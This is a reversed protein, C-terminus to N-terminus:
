RRAAVALFRHPPDDYTTLTWGTREAALRLPTEALPDDPRLERGYRAALAARGSPHFLVLRGGPRTVRALERLGADTDPLHTILGAAFVADVSGTALPLHRADAVVLLAGSATAALRAVALMQPTLDIGIVRGDAGVADRLAPLARGTGCGVDVAVGGPAVTADAVAAAYAPLDDGFRANWTAARAGFFARTESRYWAGHPAFWGDIHRIVPWGPDHLDVVVHADDGRYGGAGAATRVWITLAWETTPVHDRWRPGDAIVATDPTRGTRVDAHNACAADSVRVCTRGAARLTAALRDALLRAGGGSGGSGDVHVSPAGAPVAATLHALVTSWRERQEGTLGALDEAM